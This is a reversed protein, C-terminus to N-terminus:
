ASEEQLCEKNQLLMFTALITSLLLPVAITMASHIEFRTAMFGILGSGCYQLTAFLGSAAGALRKFPQLAAGTAPGMILGVGFTMIANPVVINAVAMPLLGAVVLMAFSGLAMMLLGNLVIRYASFVKQLLTSFYNGLLFVVANLGFYFAFGFGSVGLRDILLINGVSFYIFLQTLAVMACLTYLLFTKDKAVSIYNSLFNSWTPIITDKPRTEPLFPLCIILALMSFMALFYFCAKWTGFSLTLGVGLMPALMPTLAISCGILSFMQFSARGTFTDNVIAYTAVLTGCAGLGQIFRFLTLWFITSSSAALLSAVIFVVTSYLIVVRRGYRDCLLGIFPQGIGTGFMFFALLYQIHEADTHLERMMMPVDSVFIDMGLAHFM